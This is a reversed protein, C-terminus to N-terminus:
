NYYQKLPQPLNLTINYGYNNNLLKIYNMVDQIKYTLGNSLSYTWNDIINQNNIDRCYFGNKVMCGLVDKSHHVTNKNNNSILMIKVSNNRTIQIFNVKNDTKGSKLYVFYNNISYFIDTYYRYDVNNPVISIEDITMVLHTKYMSNINMDFGYNMNNYGDAWTADMILVEENVYAYIWSHSNSNNIHNFIDNYSLNSYNTYGSVYSSMIGVSSLMDHLLSSYGFCVAKKNTFTQYISQSYASTDYNLNNIIWEYITRTKEKETKCNKVLDLTFDKVIKFEDMSMYPFMFLEKENNKVVLEFQTKAYEISQTITTLSYETLSITPTAQTTTPAIVQSSSDDCFECNYIKLGPTYNTNNYSEIEIYNHTCAFYNLDKTEKLNCNLCTYEIIGKEYYSSKKIVEYINNHGLEKVIDEKYEDNCACKFLTYGVNTCTPSVISKIYNHTHGLKPITETVKNNCNLCIKEKLGEILDTAEVKIEWETYNHGIADIFDENYSYGCHCIYETYGQKECTPSYINKTYEHTHDLKPIDLVIKENCRLCVKEKKGGSTKTPEKTIVWESYDHDLYNVIQDRYSYGCFCTHETYGYEVCTAEVVKQEYVHTHDLMPLIEQEINECTNCKREKLGQEEETAEKLITWETYDHGLPAIFDNKAIM